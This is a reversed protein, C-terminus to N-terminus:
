CENCTRTQSGRNEGRTHKHQPNLLPNQHPHPVEVARTGEGVGPVSGCGMGALTQDKRPIKGADDQFFLLYRIFKKKFTTQHRTDPAQKHNSIAHKSPWLFCSQLDCPTRLTTHFAHAINVKGSRTRDQTLRGLTFGSAMYTNM